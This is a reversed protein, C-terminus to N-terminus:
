RWIFFETKYDTTNYVIHACAELKKCSDEGLAWLGCACYKSQYTIELLMLTLKWYHLYCTAIHM